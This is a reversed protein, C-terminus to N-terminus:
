KRSAEFMAQIRQITDAESPPKDERYRKVRAFRLALGGPYRPSEQLDNFAIEAVLKPHVYVTWEDRGTELSLLRETQWQLMDDTLGKFTKGLMVFQGSEPDRAGLHLNSLWGKRRGHGWEAALIVLDLTKAPKIKLWYFGRHGAMYPSDVGKAMIGEHGAELSKKLFEGVVKEDATVIQPIRYEPPLNASLLEFRKSLAEDFLPTGDLYLLDFFYSTIPIEKKIREIDQVRGFRRMTTQFPLPRGDPRLAVTEGEFIAKDLRFGRAATVIEPVRETVEKLHRTFVRIEEGNKHIQIRAGDIKFECAVQGWRTLADREEEATNALMPAIPHFLRPQFRSLGEIGEELAARAIEGINGSFMVGRQIREVALGSAQAIAEVVLGELAGQRVENMILGVLFDKEDERVSSFLDRLIKVKKEASGAGRSQAIQDFFRNVEQLSLPRPRKDLNGLTKQLAAWGIGLSGQPIQGSLYSTALAIEPGQGSKLYESLLSAKEKKRTTAGVRKSVEVLDKLLMM